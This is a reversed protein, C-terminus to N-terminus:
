GKLKGSEKLAEYNANSGLIYYEKKVEELQKEFDSYIKNIFRVLDKAGSEEVEVWEECHEIAYERTM